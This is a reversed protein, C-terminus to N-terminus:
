GSARASASSPPASTTPPLLSPPPGNPHTGRRPAGRASSKRKPDVQHHTRSAGLQHGARVNTLYESFDGDGMRTKCDELRELAYARFDDRPNDNAHQVLGWVAWLLDSMTKYLELRAYLAPPVHGGCYSEMLIRDQEPGFGAEVSLDGLDWMPDNMGSYEWDIIYVHGGTDLFNRPWADNHCPALPIPSSELARRVAEAGRRVEDFEGPLPARLKLLLSLYYGIKAFVNFRSEFARGSYHIKRLALAARALTRPDGNLRAEDMTAGEIFRSLMLGDSADFFLMEANIGAAAAVRANHEEAARDIYDSTGKGPLRLVYVRGNITIKYSANTLSGLREFKVAERRLGGFLPVRALAAYVGDL